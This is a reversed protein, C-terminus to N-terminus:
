YYQFLLFNNVSFYIKGQPSNDARKRRRRRPRLSEATRNELECESGDYGQALKKVEERRKKLLEYVRAFYDEAIEQNTRKSLIQNGMKARGVIDESIDDCSDCSIESPENVVPPIKGFEGIDESGDVVKFTDSKKVASNSCLIEKYDRSQKPISNYGFDPSIWSSSSTEEERSNNTTESIISDQQPSSTRELVLYNEQLATKPRSNVDLNPQSSQELYNSKQHNYKPHQYTKQNENPKVIAEESDGALPDICNRINECIRCDRISCSNKQMDKWRPKKMFDEEEVDMTDLRDLKDLRSDLKKWEKYERWTREMNDQPQNRRWDLNGVLTDSKTKRSYVKQREAPKREKYVNEPEDSELLVDTLTRLRHKRRLDSSGESNHRSGSPQLQRESFRVVSADSGVKRIHYNKRNPSDSYREKSEKEDIGIEPFGRTGIPQSRSRCLKEEKMKASIRDQLYGRIKALDEKTLQKGVKFSNVTNQPFPPKLVDEEFRTEENPAFNRVDNTDRGNSIDRRGNSVDRRDVSFTRDSQSSKRWSKGSEASDARKRPASKTRERSERNLSSDSKNRLYVRVKEYRAEAIESPTKGSTSQTRLDDLIQQRLYDGPLYRKSDESRCTVETSSNRKRSKKGGKRVDADSRSKRPIGFQGSEFKSSFGEFNRNGLSKTRTKPIKQSEPFEEHSSLGDRFSGRARQATGGITEVLLRGDKDLLQIVPIADASTTLQWEWHSPKDIKLRIIGDKPDKSSSDGEYPTATILHATKMITNQSLCILSESQCDPNKM